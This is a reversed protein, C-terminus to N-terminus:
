KDGGGGVKGGSYDLPDKQGGRRFFVRLMWPFYLNGPSNKSCGLFVCSSAFINRIASYTMLIIKEKEPSAGNLRKFVSGM